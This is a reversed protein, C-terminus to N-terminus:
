VWGLASCLFGDISLKTSTLHPRPPLLQLYVPNTHLIWLILSKGASMEQSFKFLVVPSSLEDEVQQVCLSVLISMSELNLRMEMGVSICSVSDGNAGLIWEIPTHPITHNTVAEPYGWTSVERYSHVVALIHTLDTLSSLKQPLVTSKTLYGGGLNRETRTLHHKQTTLYLIFMCYSISQHFQSVSM